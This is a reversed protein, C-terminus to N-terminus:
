GHTPSIAQGAYEVVQGPRIQTGRRMVIAGDVSVEGNEVVMRAMAGDQVLNGLKLLQGLRISEDGIPVPQVPIGEPGPAQGGQGPTM